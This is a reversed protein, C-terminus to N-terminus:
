TGSDSKLVDMGFGLGQAVLNSSDMNGLINDQPMTGPGPIYIKSTDRGSPICEYMRRVNTRNLQKIKSVEDEMEDVRLRRKSILKDEPKIPSPMNVERDDDSLVAPVMNDSALHMKIAGTLVEIEGENATEEARTLYRTMLDNGIEIGESFACEALLQVDEQTRTMVAAQLSIQFATDIDEDNGDYHSSDLIDADHDQFEKSNNGTGDCCIIIRHIRKTEM